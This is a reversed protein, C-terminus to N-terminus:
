SMEELGQYLASREAAEAEMKKRRLDMERRAFSLAPGGITEIVMRGMAQVTKAPLDSYVRKTKGSSHDYWTGANVDTLGRLRRVLQYVFAQDSRFRRPETEHLLFISLVTEMIDREEVHEAVKVMEHCARAVSRNTTRGSDHDRLAQRCRGVLVQWRQGAMEWFCNAPNKEWREHVIQRYPKLENKSIGQQQPDGHRRLRAKHTNCLTGWRSTAAQCGPVGCTKM